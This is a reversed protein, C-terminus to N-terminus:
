VSRALDRTMGVVPTVNTCSGTHCMVDLIVSLVREYFMWTRQRERALTARPSSRARGIAARLQDATALQGRKLHLIEIPFPFYLLKSNQATNLAVVRKGMLAGWYAGHYSTTVLVETRCLFSLVTDISAESNLLRPGALDTANGWHLYQEPWTAHLYYSIHLPRQSQVAVSTLSGTCELPLMSSADM